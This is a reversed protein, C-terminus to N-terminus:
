PRIDPFGTARPGVRDGFPEKLEEQKNKEEELHQKYTEAEKDLEALIEAFERDDELITLDFNEFDKLAYKRTVTKKTM